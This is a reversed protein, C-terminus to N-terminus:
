NRESDLHPRTVAIFHRRFVASPHRAFRSPRPPRSLCPHNSRFSILCLARTRAKAVGLAGCMWFACGGCVVREGVWVCVCGGACVVGYVVLFGERCEGTGGEGGGFVFHECEPVM